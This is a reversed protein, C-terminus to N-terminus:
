INNQCQSTHGKGTKDFVRTMVEQTGLNARLVAMVNIFIKIPDPPLQPSPNGQTWQHHPEGVKALCMTPLAPDKHEETVEMIVLALDTKHTVAERVVLVKAPGSFPENFGPVLLLPFHHATKM